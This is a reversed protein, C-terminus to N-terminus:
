RRLACVKSLGSLTFTLVDSCHAWHRSACNMPTSHTIPLYKTRSSRSLTPKRWRYWNDLEHKKLYSGTPNNPNVASHRPNASHGDSGFEDFDLWWGENYAIPITQCARSLRRWSNLYRISPSPTLIEDGPDCLLQFLFGYSESTSTTLLVRDASVGHYAAIAERAPFFDERRHSMIAHGHMPMWFALPISRIRSKPLISETLDLVM